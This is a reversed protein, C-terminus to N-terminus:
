AAPKWAGFVLPNTLVLAGTATVLFKEGRGTKALAESHPMDSLRLEVYDMPCSYALLKSAATTPDGLTNIFNSLRVKGTGFDTELVDVKGLVVNEGPTQQFNRTVTMNAENRSYFTLNHGLANKWTSGCWIDLDIDQDGHQDYQAKMVNTITSDKYDATNTASDIQAALPRYNADVPYHNQAATQIWTGMGRTANATVASTQAASENDGLFTTEMDRKLEILKKAIAKALVNRPTIGAQATTSNALGGIRAAREWTQIRAYLNADGDRPNEYSQPDAEDAAGATNPSAFKEVAYELQANHPREGKRVASTFPLKKRDANVFESSLDQVKGVSDREVLVSM